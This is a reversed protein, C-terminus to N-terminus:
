FDEGCHFCHWKESQFKIKLKKFLWSLPISDKDDEIRRTNKSGCHVCVRNDPDLQETDEEWFGHQAQEEAMEKELELLISNAKQEADAPVQLVIKTFAAGYMTTINQDKLFCYIGESELKSKVINATIYNDFSRITAFEM